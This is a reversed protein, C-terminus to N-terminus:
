SLQFTVNLTLEVPWPVGNLYTPQYKWQKVAELAAAILMPPGDIAHAQVVNGDKDIVADIKVDGEVRAQLALRPYVPNPKSIAIPAKVQGGIHLPANPNATTPPPPPPVAVGSGGLLGGLVGGPVGGVVGGPVGAILSNADPADEPPADAASHSLQIAKPIAIPM